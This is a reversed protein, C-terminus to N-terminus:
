ERPSGRRAVARAYLERRPLGLEVSLEEAIHKARRGQALERDIRADLEEDSPRAGEAAPEAPALVLTIEGLWERGLAALEEVTGGLIEEHVKTLERAVVARRGRMREALEALTERFRRPSEFLVVAEPTSTVLALAERRERGGRPLFGVFRFGGTVLGSASVAAMVASPGPIAVVRAGADKAARVLATGPDSVVPTGADTMFAISEGAALRAAARAADAESAHADFRDVPKGSVGLHGLLARARRTDEALIRDAARLTEVARLTIDGLNGIPTAVVYLCGRDSAGGQEGDTSM